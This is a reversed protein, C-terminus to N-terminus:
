PEYINGFRKRIVLFKRPSKAACMITILPELILEVFPCIKPWFLFLGSFGPKQSNTVM